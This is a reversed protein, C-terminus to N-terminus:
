NLSNSLGTLMNIIEQSEQILDGAANKDIFGLDKSLMLQCKIEATSGNAIGIFHKFEGNTNRHGGEMLNSTISVAARRLQSVLGFLESKPFENTIKYINIVFAYARNFVDLKEIIHM